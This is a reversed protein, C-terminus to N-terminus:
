PSRGAHRPWGPAPLVPPRHRFWWQDYKDCRGRNHAYRLFVPVARHWYGGRGPTTSTRGTSTFQRYRGSVQVGHIVCQSNSKGLAADKFLRQRQQGGGTNLRNVIRFGAALQDKIGVLVVDFQHNDTRCIHGGIDPITSSIHANGALIYQQFVTALTEVFWQIQLNCAAAQHHRTRFASLVTLSTQPNSGLIDVTRPSIIGLTLLLNFDDLQITGHFQRRQHSKGVPNNIHHIGAIGQLGVAQRRQFM